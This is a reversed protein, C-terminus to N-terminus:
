GDTRRIKTLMLLHFIQFSFIIDEEPESQKLFNDSHKKFVSSHHCQNYVINSRWLILRRTKFQLIELPPYITSILMAKDQHRKSSADLIQWFVNSGFQGSSQPSQGLFHNPPLTIIYITEEGSIKQIRKSLGRTYIVVVCQYGPLMLLIGQTKM